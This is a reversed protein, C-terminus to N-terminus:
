RGQNGDRYGGTVRYIERAEGEGVAIEIQVGDYFTGDLNREILEALRRLRWERPTLILLYRMYDAYNIEPSLRIGPQLVVSHGRMLKQMDGIGKRLSEALALVETFVQPPIHIQGFSMLTVAVSAVLGKGELIMWQGRNSRLAAYQHFTRLLSLVGKVVGRNFFDPMKGLLVTEVEGIKASKLGACSDGRLTTTQPRALDGYPQAFSSFLGVIYENLFLDEMFAPEPYDLFRDLSNVIDLIASTWNGGASDIEGPPLMPLAIMDAWAVRFENFVNLQEANLIQREAPLAKNSVSYGMSEYMNLMMLQAEASPQFKRRIEEALLAQIEAESASTGSDTGSGSSNAGGLALEAFRHREELMRAYEERGAAGAAATYHELQCRVQEALQAQDLGGAMVARLRELQEGSVYKGNRDLVGDLEWGTLGTLGAMWLHHINAQSIAGGDARFHMGEIEPAPLIFDTAPRRLNRVVRFLATPAEKAAMGWWEAAAFGSDSSFQPPWVKAVAASGGALGAGDGSLALLSPSPDAAVSPLRNIEGVHAEIAKLGSVLNPLYQQTLQTSYRQGEFAGKLRKILEIPYRPKMFQTIQRLLLNPQLANIHPEVEIRLDAYYRMDEERFYQKLIDTNVKSARLGLLGYRELLGRDYSAQSVALQGNMAQEVVVRRNYTMLIPLCVAALAVVAALVIALFLSLGGPEDRWLYDGSRNAIEHLIVAPRRLFVAPRRLYNVVRRM